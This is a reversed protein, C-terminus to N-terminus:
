QKIEIFLNNESVLYEFRLTDGKKIYISEFPYKDGYIFIYYSSGFLRKEKNIKEVNIFSVVRESKGFKIVFNENDFIIEGRRAVIIPILSLPLILIACFIFLYLYTILYNIYTYGIDLDGLINILVFPIIFIIMFLVSLIRKREKVTVKEERVRIRKKTNAM